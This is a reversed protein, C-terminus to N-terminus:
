HSVQQVFLTNLTKVCHKFAFIEDTDHTFRMIPKGKKKLQTCINSTQFPTIETLLYNHGFIFIVASVICYSIVSISKDKTMFQSCRRCFLARQNSDHRYECTSSVRRLTIWCWGVPSREGRRATWPWLLLRWFVRSVKFIVFEGLTVRFIPFFHLNNLM